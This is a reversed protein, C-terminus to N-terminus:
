STKVNEKSYVINATGHDLRKKDKGVKKAIWAREGMFMFPMDDTNGKLIDEAVIMASELLDKEGDGGAHSTYVRDYRGKIKDQIHYLSELYQSISLSNHDYVFTFSNCADGFFVTREEPFLFAMSGPTHGPFALVEVTIGGLSFIQGDALPLFDTMLQAIYNEKKIRIKWHDISEEFFAKRHCNKSNEKFVPEDLPNMYVQQFLGAGLAHDVHGHSLLVSIPKDTLKETLAKLNGVGVGTDILVAKENGEVLYGTPNCVGEAGQTSETGM